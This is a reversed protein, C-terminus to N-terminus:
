GLSSITQWRRLPCRASLDGGWAAGPQFREAEVRRRNVVEGGMIQAAEAMQPTQVQGTRRDAILRDAPQGLCFVRASSDLRQIEVSSTDGVGTEVM